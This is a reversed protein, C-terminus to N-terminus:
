KTQTSTVYVIESSNPSAVVVGSSWTVPTGNITGNGAEVDVNFSPSTFTIRSYSEKGTVLYKSYFLLKQGSSRVILNPSSNTRRDDTDFTLKTISSPTAM